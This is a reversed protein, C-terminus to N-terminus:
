RRTTESEWARFFTVAQHLGAGIPEGRRAALQAKKASRWIRRIAELYPLAALDATGLARRETYGQLFRDGIPRLQHNVWLLDWARWGLGCMGFDFVTLNEDGAIHVNKPWFDGHCPGWDLDDAAAEAWARLRAGLGRLYDWDEPCHPLLRELAALPRELPYDLDTCLRAHPSSFDESAGHIAAALRGVLYSQREDWPGGPWFFVIRHRSGFANERPTPSCSTRDQDRLPGSGPSPAGERDAVPVAVSIGRTFLHGLLEPEYGVHSASRRGAGYVRLVLRHGRSTVLYTDNAGAPLLRCTAPMEIPVQLMEPLLADASLVSFSPPVVECVPLAVSMM